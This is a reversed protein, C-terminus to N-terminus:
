PKQDEQKNEQKKFKKEGKVSRLDFYLSSSGMFHNGDFYSPYSNGIRRFTSNKIENLKM